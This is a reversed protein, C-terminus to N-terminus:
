LYHLRIIESKASRIAIDNLSLFPMGALITPESIRCVLASFHFLKKNHTFVVDTEGLVELSTCCDAMRAQQDTPRVVCKLKAATASDLM